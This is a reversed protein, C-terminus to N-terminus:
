FHYIHMNSTDKENLQALINYMYPLFFRKNPLLDVSLSFNLDYMYIGPMQLEIM